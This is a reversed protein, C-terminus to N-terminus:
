QPAWPCGPSHSKPDRPITYSYCGGERAWPVYKLIETINNYFDSERCVCIRQGDEEELNWKSHGEQLQEQLQLEVEQLKKQQQGQLLRDGLHRSDVRV